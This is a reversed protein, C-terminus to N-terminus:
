IILVRGFGAVSRKFLAQDQKVLRPLTFFSNHVPPFMQMQIIRSFFQGTVDVNKELNLRSLPIIVHSFNPSCLSFRCSLYFFGKDSAFSWGDEEERGEGGVGLVRFLRIPFPFRSFFLSPLIKAPIRQTDSGGGEM